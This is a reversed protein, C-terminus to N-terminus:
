LNDIRCALCVDSPYEVGLYEGCEVCHQIRVYHGEGVYEYHTKDETKDEMVIGKTTTESYLM